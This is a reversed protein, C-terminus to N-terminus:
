TQVILKYLFDFLNTQTQVSWCIHPKQIVHNRLRSYIIMHTQNNIQATTVYDQDSHVYIRVTTVHHNIVHECLTCVIMIHVCWPPVVCVYLHAIAIYHKIM